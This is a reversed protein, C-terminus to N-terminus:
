EDQRNTYNFRRVWVQQGTAGTQTQLKDSFSTLLTDAYVLVLASADPQPM